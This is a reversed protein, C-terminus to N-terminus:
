GEEEQREAVYTSLPSCMFAFDHSPYTVRPTKAIPGVHSPFSQQWWLDLAHHASLAPMSRLLMRRGHISVHYINYSNM